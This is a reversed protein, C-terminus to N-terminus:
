LSPIRLLDGPVLERIRQLGNEDAIARWLSPDGYETAAIQDLREGEKVVWTKTRDPSQPNIRRYQVDAAEFSKLTLSLRARLIHGTEDFLTFREQLSQVVGVFSQAGWVFRCLPPAHLEPDLEVFQRIDKLKEEVNNLAPGENASAAAAAAGAVAAAAGGAAGAVAAAASAASLGASEDPQGRTRTGDLFLELSLSNSEGRVFQLLPQALGPVGIEAYSVSRDISYETPNFMVDIGAETDTSITQGRWPGSIKYLTAKVLGM